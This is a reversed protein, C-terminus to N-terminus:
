RHPFPWLQITNKLVTWRHALGRPEFILVLLISAGLAINTAAFIAGGAERANSRMIMTGVEHLGEQFVTIFLVGLIAGIPSHAGGVILMGLYWISAFLTFSEITVFQLFWATCAGAVGAFLSGVFFAYIKTRL